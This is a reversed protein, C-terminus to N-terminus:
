RAAVATESGLPPVALSCLKQEDVTAINLALRDVASLDGTATGDHSVLVVVRVVDDPLGAPSVMLPDTAFSDDPSKGLLRVAGDGGVPQNYFVFDNDDHVRGDAGLLLASVDLELQGDLSWEVSDRLSEVEEGDHHLPVNQGMTLEATM